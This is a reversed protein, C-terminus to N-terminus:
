DTTSAYELSELSGGGLLKCKARDGDYDDLFKEGPELVQSEHKILGRLPDLNNQNDMFGTILDCYEENEDKLKARKTASWKEFLNKFSEGATNPKSITTILESEKLLYEISQLFNKIHSQNHALPNGDSVIKEFAENMSKLLIQLANNGLDDKVDIDIVSYTMIRQIEPLAGNNLATIYAKQDQQEQTLKVELNDPKVRKPFFCAFIGM